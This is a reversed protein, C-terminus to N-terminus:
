CEVNIIINGAEGQVEEAGAAAVSDALAAVAEEVVLGDEVVLGAV